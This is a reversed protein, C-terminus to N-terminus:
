NINIIKSSWQSSVRDRIDMTLMMSEEDHMDEFHLHLAMAIAAIIEGNEDKIEEGKSEITKKVKKSRKKEKGDFNFIKPLFFFFLYISILAAFVISFGIIFITIANADIKSTDFSIASLLSLM